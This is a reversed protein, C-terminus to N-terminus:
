KGTAKKPSAYPDEDGNYRPLPKAPPPAGPRLQVPADDALYAWKSLLQGLTSVRMWGEQANLGKQWRARILAAPYDKCLAAVAVNDRGRLFPYKEGRLKAYDETLDDILERWPSARRDPPVTQFATEILAEEKAEVRVERREGRVEAPDFGPLVGTSGRNDEKVWLAPLNPARKKRLRLHEMEMAYSMGRIRWEDPGFREVFGCTELVSPEIAQGFCVLLEAKLEADPLTLPKRAFIARQLRRRDALGEWFVTLAGRVRLYDMSTATALRAAKPGVSRHVQIFPIQPDIEDRAM